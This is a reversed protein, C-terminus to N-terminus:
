TADERRIGHRAMLKHLGVRTMGLIRAAETVNGGTRALVDLAMARELEGVAEKLTKGEAPAGHEAGRGEPLRPSLDDPGILEGGLALARLLENELERVNGPWDHDVLMGLAARSLRRAEGGHRALLHQALLPIDERRERLPPLKLQIVNIRYFLDERFQGDRVLQGLDKNSAALLRFDAEREQEGGLPQFMKEQLVRLLKVQLEAPMDGVEDLFLSGGHSREFLGRHRRDAGTFAGREYGFLESELLTPAIAGCNVSVFPGERRPGNYHLAKAVLEKGTGSEGLIYVPADSDTVRSMLRFLERMVASQGILNDFRYRGELEGRQSRTVRALEDLELRQREMARELRRNVRELERQSRSLEEGQRRLQELRERNGIALAAQDALAALLEGDPRTFAQSQFRNDVYIAGRVVRRITMPVCLISRLRLNHVSLFDQFRRDDMANVTVLPRGTRLVEEAVSRSIKFAKRRITEQDINRAVEISLPQDGAGPREEHLILFGREAGTLDVAHDIIRELLRQLDTEAALEKTIELLAALLDADLRAKGPPEVGTARAEVLRRRDGQDLFAERLDAPLQGLQRELLRRALDRHLDAGPSDGAAELALALDRHLEPLANREGSEEALRLATRLKAAAGAPDALQEARACVVLAQIQPASFGEAREQVAAALRAAGPDDRGLLQRARALEVEAWGLVEGLAEFIGRARLLDDGGRPGDLEGRLLLNHAELGRWGRAQCLELSRRLQARAREPQGIQALLRALNHAVQAIERAGGFGRAAELSRTYSELAAGLDGQQQAVSGLNMEFTALFPLHSLERALAVCRRYCAGAQELRGSRQHVLALSNEVKALLLGDGSAEAREVARSLAGRAREMDGLYYLALGATHLAELDDEGIEEAVSLAEDHRGAFLLLKAQLGRGAGGSAGHRELTALGAAADGQLLQAAALARLLRRRAEGRAQGAAGELEAVAAAGQGAAQLVAALELVADAPGAGAGLAARYLTIARTLRLERRAARAGALMLAEEEHALGCRLAVTARVSDASDSPGARELADWAQRCLERREAAPLERVLPGALSGATLEVRADERESVLGALALAALGQRSGPDLGALPLGEEFLAVLAALRRLPPPLDAVRATVLRELGGGPPLLSDWEGDAVSGQELWRAVALRTTEVALLPNGGSFRHVRASLEGAAFRSPVMSRVLEVTEAEDLPPLEMPEVEGRLAPPPERAAVCLFLPQGEDRALHWLALLTRDALEDAPDDVVLLLPGHELARRTREVARQVALAGEAAPEPASGGSTGPGAFGREVQVGHLGALCVAEECVRTRGSGSSGSVVLLCPAARSGTIAELAETVRAVIAARGVLAPAPLGRGVLVRDASGVLAPELEELLGLLEAASSPRQAPRRDLLRRVLARLGESAGSPPLEVDEALQRAVVQGAEGEFPMRGWLARFLLVGVAYLDSRPSSAEGGLVEPAIYGATGAVSGRQASDVALGLDVLRVGREDVLVNDPKVDRHVVGRRHLFDLIAVLQALAGIVAERSRGASWRDLPQGEVLECVLAPTTTLEHVRPLGPHVLRALMAYERRLLGREGETPPLLKVAVRRGPVRRDEALWVSGQGGQGLPRLPRYHPGIDPLGPVM